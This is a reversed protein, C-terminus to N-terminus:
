AFDGALYRWYVVAGIAMYSYTLSYIYVTQVPTGAIHFILMILIGLFFSVVVQGLPILLFFIIGKRFVAIYLVAYFAYTLILLIEVSDFFDDGKSNVFRTLNATYFIAFVLVVIVYGLSIYIFNRKM